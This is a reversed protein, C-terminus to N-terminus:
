EFHKARRTSIVSLTSSRMLSHHPGRPPSACNWWGVPRPPCRAPHIMLQRGEFTARLRQAHLKQVDLRALAHGTEPDSLRELHITTANLKGGGWARRQDLLETRALCLLLIPTDRTWDAVHELLDLFTPEAWHIDEFVLVLPRDRALAEFFKRVAWSTEEPPIVAEGLGLLQGVRDAILGEREEGRLSTMMKSRAQEASDGIGIGTAQRIVEGIALYTIGEGYPLCRGHFARVRPEVQRVFEGVQRSKGVGAAGLITFLHCARDAAVRDTAQLLLGMERNRGVMDSKLHRAPSEDSLIQLVRYAHVSDAKLWLPESREADVADKVLLYTSEGILIEGTAAAQELRAAVNVADGTVLSYDRSPTV